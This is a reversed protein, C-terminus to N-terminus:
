CNAEKEMQGCGVGGGKRLLSVLTFTTRMNNTPYHPLPTSPPIFAQQQLQQIAVKLTSDPKVLFFSM